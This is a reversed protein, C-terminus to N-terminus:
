PTRAPEFKWFFTATGWELTSSPLPHFITKRLLDIALQDVAPSGSSEELLVHFVIGESSVGLRLTTTGTENLLNVQPSPPTKPTSKKRLELNKSLLLQTSPHIPIIESSPIFSPPPPTLHELARNQLPITEEWLSEAESGIVLLPLSSTSPSDFHPDIRKRKEPLLFNQRLLLSPDRMQNWFQTSQWSDVGLLESTSLFIETRRNSSPQAIPYHVEIVFFLFAHFILIAFIIIGLRRKEEPVWHYIRLPIKLALDPNKLM